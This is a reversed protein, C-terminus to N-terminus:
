QALFFPAYQQNKRKRKKREKKKKKKKCMNVPLISIRILEWTSVPKCAPLPTMFKIPRLSAPIKTRVPTAKAWTLLEPPETTFFRDALAPFALSTPETGPDPLDEHLHEIYPFIPLPQSSSGKLETWNLRETMDSEKRGCSDCCALGGQGDGSRRGVFGTQGQNSLLFGLIGQLGRSTWPLQPTSLGFSAMLPGGTELSPSQRLTTRMWGSTLPLPRHVTSGWSVCSAPNRLEALPAKTWHDERYNFIQLPCEWASVGMM